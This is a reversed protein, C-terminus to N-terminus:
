VMTITVKLITKVVKISNGSLAKKRNRPAEQLKITGIECYYAFVRCKRVWNFFM